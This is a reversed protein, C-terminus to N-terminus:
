RVEALNNLSYNGISETHWFRVGANYMAKITDIAEVPLSGHIIVDATQVYNWSPRSDENPIKVENCAYGYMDFYDDVAKAMAPRISTQKFTLGVSDTKFNFASNVPTAKAEGQSQSRINKEIDNKGQKAIGGILGGVGGVVAGVVNGTLAGVVVGKAVSALVDVLNGSSSQQYSTNLWQAFTDGSWGCVPFNTSEIMADPNGRGEVTTDGDYFTPLAVISPNYGAMCYIDFNVPYTVMGASANTAFKEYQYTKNTGNNNSVVIACYPYTFLKNNKPTYDSLTTPRNLEIKTFQPPSLVSYPSMYIAVIADLKSGLNPTDNVSQAWESNMYDGIFQNAAEASTFENFKLGSYVKDVLQGQVTTGDNNVATCVVIRYNTADARYNQISNCLREMEGFPEPQLNSYLEDTEAHERLVYSPLVQYDFCWTQYHDLVYVIETNNPNIYNVQKIFAYFWKTGFNSNQFMMYNCNYLDDAVANVRCTLPPRQSTVTSNPRQYSVENFTKVAKSAIYASQEGLSGFKRVDTYTNDWPINACLRVIGKPYIDAMM